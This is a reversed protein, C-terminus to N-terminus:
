PAPTANGLPLVNQTSRFLNAPDYKAKISALRSYNSGYAARVLADPEDGLNNVYVDRDVHPEIAAWLERAWAINADSEAPSLWQALILCDFRDGRHAFATAHPAVRAAAGHFQQLAVITFPSPQRRVYEILVDVVDAPVRSTLSSKWYHRRGPPFFGDLMSQVGTYPMAQLHDALPSGFARLPAVVREGAAPSGCYCCALAVAPTGDPLTVLAATTTLEDPAGASFELFFNLADRAHALPHFVPGALVPGVPHLRYEISTVVGFNGSGGRLAWFLDDHRGANVTLRKADATVIDFANVNDCALGYRGNLWGIGGGLTLGSIGTVSVIGLPTAFGFEQTARDLEGLTLGPQAQATRTQPDIRVSKMASLDIMLGADCVALGAVSHGGGRVSLPMGQERAFVVAAAVDEADRCQAIVAPRRDIMANFVHRASDYGADEPTLVRGPLRTRLAAITSSSPM